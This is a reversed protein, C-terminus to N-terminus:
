TGEGLLFKSLIKPRMIAETTPKCHKLQTLLVWLLAAVLLAAHLFPMDRRSQVFWALGTDVLFNFDVGDVESSIYLGLQDERGHLTGVMSCLPRQYCRLVLGLGKLKPGGENGHNPIGPSSILCSFRFTNVSGAIREVSM